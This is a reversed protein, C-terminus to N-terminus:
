TSASKNPTVYLEAYRGNAAMLEGHTGSEVVEGKEIVFIRDANIVTSLRHAVTITTCRNALEDIAKQVVGESETDLASTAEDLLLIPAGRLFARAVAIRQRQGGSLRAGNEGTQTEYKDPLADIFRDASAARAAQQIQEDTADPRSYSINARITNDFLSTDQSVFGISKRLHKLGVNRIDQDNITIAGGDVDYFRAVLNLITSKGGGSGGVLAVTQGPLVDLSIDKLAQTGDPYNFSVNQLRIHAQEANLEVDPYEDKQPTIEDMARFLRDAAALGNQLQANAKGLRRLPSVVGLLAAIFAFFEGPTIVQDIVLTGGFFVTGAMATGVVIETAPRILALIRANKLMLNQTRVMVGEARENEHAERGYAKIQRVSSLTDNLFGVLDGYSVQLRGSNKRISKGIRLMPLIILPFVCLVVLTMIVDKELMVIILAITTFLDKILPVLTQTLGDRLLVADIVFRSISKGVNEKEFHRLDSLMMRDFLRQQVRTSIKQGVASLIFQQGFSALATVLFVGILASAIAVLASHDGSVFVKNMLPELMHVILATGASVTALCVLGLVTSPIYHRLFERWVRKALYGNSYKRDNPDPKPLKM